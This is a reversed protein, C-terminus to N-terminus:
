SPKKPNNKADALHGLLWKIADDKDTFVKTPRNKLKASFRQTLSLFLNGVLKSAFSKALLASATTYLDSSAYQKMVDKKVYVEPFHLLTARAKGAIAEELVALNEQVAELSYAGKFDKHTNIEIIDDPRVTYTLEKTHYIM